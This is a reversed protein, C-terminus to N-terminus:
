STAIKLSTQRRTSNSTLLYPVHFVMATRKGNEILWDGVLLDNEGWMTIWDACEDLLLHKTM